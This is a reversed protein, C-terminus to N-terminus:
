ADYVFQADVAVDPHLSRLVPCERAVRELREREQPSLRAPLHVALTLKGIRRPASSMEKEVRMCMGSLDMGEREAAISMIIMMCAGLAGAVLDTPSFSSGQGANDRPADTLIEAGSPQHKLRAKKNGAYVGDIIVSM